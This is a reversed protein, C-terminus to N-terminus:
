PKSWGKVSDSGRLNCVMKSCASPWSVSDEAVARASVRAAWFRSGRMTSNQSKLEESGEGPTRMEGVRLFYSAYSRAGRRKAKRTRNKFTRERNETQACNRAALYSVFDLLGSFRYDADVHNQIVYFAFYYFRCFSCVAVVLFFVGSTVRLGSWNRM